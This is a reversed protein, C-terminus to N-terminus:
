QFPSAAFRIALSLFLGPRYTDVYLEDDALKEKIVEDPSFAGDLRRARTMAGGVVLSLNERRTVAVGLMVAPASKSIGVGATLWSFSIERSARDTPLWQVFVAPVFKADSWRPRRDRVIRYTSNAEARLSFHDDRDSTFGFGWTTVWHGADPATLVCKWVKMPGTTSARTVTVVLQQNGRLRYGSLDIPQRTAAVARAVAPEAESWCAPTLKRRLAALSAITTSVGKEDVAKDLTELWADVPATDCTGPGIALMGSTSIKTSVPIAPIDRTELAVLLTYEEGPVRNVVIAGNVMGPAVQYTQMAPGALDLVQGSVISAASMAAAVACLIVRHNM